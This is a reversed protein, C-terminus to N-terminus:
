CTIFVVQLIMIRLKYIDHKALITPLDRTTHKYRYSLYRMNAIKELYYHIITGLTAEPQPQWISAQPHIEIDAIDLPAQMASLSLRRSSHAARKKLKHVRDLIHINSLPNQQIANWALHM